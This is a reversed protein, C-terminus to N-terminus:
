WRDLRYSRPARCEARRHVPRQRALISDGIHAASINQNRATIGGDTSKYILGKGAGVIAGARRAISGRKPIPDRFALAVNDDGVHHRVFISQIQDRAYVLALIGHRTLANAPLPEVM